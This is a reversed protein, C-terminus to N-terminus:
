SPISPSAAPSNRSEHRRELFCELLRTKTELWGRKDGTAFSYGTEYGRFGLIPLTALKIIGDIFDAATLNSKSTLIVSATLLMCLTSPLLKLSMRLLKKREPNYLESKSESSALLSSVTLPFARLKCAAKLARRSSTDCNEGKKYRAFDEESCGACCLLSQRRWELDEKSYDRCFGRLEEIMDPTIKSRVADYRETAEKYKASSEGLREGADELSFYIVYGSILLVALTTTFQAAGIGFFKVDMFTALIAIAAAIAAIIKGTGEVLAARGKKMAASYNLIGQEFSERKV